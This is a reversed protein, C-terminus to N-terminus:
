VAVRNSNTIGPAMISSLVFLLSNTVLRIFEDFGGFNLSPNAIPNYLVLVDLQVYEM